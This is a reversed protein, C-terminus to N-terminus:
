RTRLRANRASTTCCAIVGTAKARTPVAAAGSSGASPLATDLQADVFASGAKGEGVRTVNQAIRKRDSEIFLSTLPRGLVDREEREVLQALASNAFVVTGKPDAIAVPVKLAEVIRKFDEVM